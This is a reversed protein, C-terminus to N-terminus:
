LNGFNKLLIRGSEHSKEPHFQTGYFNNTAIASPIEHGYFSYGIIESKNSPAIEYSHVFYFRNSNINIGSILPINKKFNVSNWGLHPLVLHKDKSQIKKVYGPRWCLGSGQGEESYEYMIQLGVCIGLVPMKEVLVKHNLADILNSNLLKKMVTDFAGVGPLVLKTVGEFEKEQTIIRTKLDSLHFSKQVAGVNGTGYDLIGIM